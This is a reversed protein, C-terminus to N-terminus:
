TGALRRLEKRFSAMDSVLVAPAKGLSEALVGSVSGGLILVVDSELHQALKRIEAALSAPDAGYELSLAVARAGIQSAASAIEEAPLNAGLYLADWGLAVALVAAMLAGLEHLQGSPTATVMSPANSAVELSRLLDGLFSRIVSSAMHENMVKLSGDAWRDGIDKLLPILVEEMVAIANLSMLARRLSADLARADLNEVAALCADRYAQASEDEPAPTREPPAAGTPGPEWRVFDRLSDTPLDALGSVTHGLATARRLLILREVDEDSYRRRNTSTREPLVAGYRREWARITHPSLGTRRVVYRMPHIKKKEM